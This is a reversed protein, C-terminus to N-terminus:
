ESFACHPDKNDQGCAQTEAAATEDGCRAPHGRGHDLDNRDNAMSRGGWGISAGLDNVRLITKGYLQKLPRKPRWFRHLKKM